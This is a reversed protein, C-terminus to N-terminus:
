GGFCRDYLFVQALEFDVLPLQTAPSVKDIGRAIFDFRHLLAHAQIPVAVFVNRGALRQEVVGVLQGGDVIVQVVVAVACQDGVVAYVIVNGRTVRRCRGAERGGNDALHGSVAACLVGLQLVRQVAGVVIPRRRQVAWRM